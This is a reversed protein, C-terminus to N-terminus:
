ACAGGASERSRAVISRAFEAAHALADLDVGTKYGAEHVTRVLLETSINGPARQVTGDPLTKSAYPCGGLGAVSGDFSRVGMDLGARVCDAARGFTDHFHLTLRPFQRYGVSPTDPSILRKSVCALMDRVTEPTGAGITDGLDLETVGLDALRVAVDAVHEPPTPGEYPCAIACSIYARTELGDNAAEAVVPKFREITEAISANTNRRSFTESAATFVAVKDILQTGAARNVELAADMGKENPVLASWVGARVGWGGQRHLKGLGAFVEAADGLQPVWRPSVFSSVEIEDPGAKVLLDGLAIKDHTSIVGPENQM